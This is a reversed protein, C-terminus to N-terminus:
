RVLKKKMRIFGVIFIIYTILILTLHIKRLEPNESLNYLGNYYRIAKIPLYCIHYLLLGTGLWFLINKKRLGAQRNTWDEYLYQSVIIVLFATGTFFTLYQYELFFDQVFLNVLVVGLFIYIFYKALKKFALNETYSRFLYLFYVFFVINYINYIVYYYDIYLSNVTLSFADYKYILTGLTENFFTYLLLIPFYKLATDFYKPYRFMAVALTIGYIPIYSNELLSNPNFLM